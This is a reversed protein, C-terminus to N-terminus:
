SQFHSMLYTRLSIKQKNIGLKKRLNNRYTEVTRYSINLIESIDKSTKGQRVLDAVLTERPSLGLVIKKAEPSFSHTLSDIHASIINITETQQENIASHRLQDLYPGVLEKLRLSIQEEISEKAKTHQDLMVRLAINAEETEQKKKALEKAAMKLETVDIGLILTDFSGGQDRFRRVSSWSIDHLSGDKTKLRAEVARGSGEQFKQLLDRGARASRGSFFYDQWHRGLLEKASYGSLREGAPNIFGITGDPAISCIISPAKDIINKSFDREAQLRVEYQKQETIDLAVLGYGLENEQQDRISFFTAARYTASSGSGLQLLFEHRDIPKKIRGAKEAFLKRAGKGESDLRDLLAKAADNQHLVSLGPDM